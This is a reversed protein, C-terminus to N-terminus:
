DTKLKKLTKKAEEVLETDSDNLISQIIEISEEDGIMELLRLTVKRGQNSTKMYERIAPLATKKDGVHVLAWIYGCGAGRGFIKHMYRFYEISSNNGLAQYCTLCRNVIQKTTDFCNENLIKEGYDYEEWVVFTTGIRVKEHRSLQPNKQYYDLLFPISRQADIWGLYLMAQTRIFESTDSIIVNEFFDIAQPCSIRAIRWLMINDKDENTEAKKFGEIGENIHNILKEDECNRQTEARFERGTERISESFKRCRELYASDANQKSQQAQSALAFLCSIIYTFLIKRMITQKTIRTMKM